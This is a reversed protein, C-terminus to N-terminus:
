EVFERDLRTWGTARPARSEERKLNLVERNTPPILGSKLRFMRAMIGLDLRLLQIPPNRVSEIYCTSM